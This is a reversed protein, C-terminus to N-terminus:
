SRADELLAKDFAAIGIRTEAPHEAREILKAVRQGRAVGQLLPVLPPKILCVAHSQMDQIAPDRLQHLTQRALAPKQFHRQGQLAAIFRLVVPRRGAIQPQCHQLADPQDVKIGNQRARNRM